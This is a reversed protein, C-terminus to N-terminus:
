PHLPGNDSKCDNLQVTQLVTDLYTPIRIEDHRGDVDPLREGGKEKAPFRTGAVLMISLGITVEGILALLGIGVM